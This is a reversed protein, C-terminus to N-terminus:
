PVSEFNLALRRDEMSNRRVGNSWPSFIRNIKEGINKFINNSSILNDKRQKNYNRSTSWPLIVSQVVISFLLLVMVVGRM